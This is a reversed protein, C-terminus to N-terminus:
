DNSTSLPYVKNEEPFMYWTTSIVTNDVGWENFRLYANKVCVKELPYQFRVYDDNYEQDEKTEYYAMLVEKPCASPVMIAHPDEGRKALFVKRGGMSENRIYPQYSANLISYDDPVEFEEAVPEMTNGNLETNIFVREESGFLQHVETENNIVDGNINEIYLEDNAGCAIVSWEILNSELRKYKMVVDNLDYDGYDRDEFCFVYEAFEPEVPPPPLVGGMVQFVMDNCDSDAGTECMLYTLNNCWFWAMRPDTDGMRASAFHGHHNIYANLRGDGYMEGQRLTGDKTNEADRSRTMFGIKYGAPFKFTGKTGAATEEWYILAFGKNRNVNADELGDPNVDGAVAYQLDMAKYKPLDKFYQVKEAESKGAIEEDKFYYYYLDCYTIETTKGDDKYVPALVIPDEGTSLPYNDLTSFQSNRIRSINKGKNPLFEFFAAALTNEYTEEYADINIMLDFETKGEPLVVSYLNDNEWGAIRKKNEGTIKYTEQNKCYLQNYSPTPESLILMDADEIANLQSTIGEALGRTRTKSTTPAFDVKQEGVKFSQIFYRGDKSVCAAYLKDLAKPADYYLTVSEGYKVSKQNLIQSGNCNMTGFPSGTLIQVKAVDSLEPINVTLTVKGNATLCWDQNPNFSTGFINEAREKINEKSANEDFVDHSCGCLILTCSVLVSFVKKM